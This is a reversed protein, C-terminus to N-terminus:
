EESRELVSCTVWENGDAFGLYNYSGLNLCRRSVGTCQLTKNDMVPPHPAREMVDIHSGPKSCIPRDWCDRLRAFLRRVFFAEFDDTLDAYGKPAVNYSGSVFTKSTFDRVKGFLILFFYGLYTLFSTWLKVHM